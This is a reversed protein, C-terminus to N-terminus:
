VNRWKVLGGVQEINRLLKSKGKKGYGLLRGVGVNYSILTLLLTYKGYSRFGDFREWLNACLLPSVKLENM